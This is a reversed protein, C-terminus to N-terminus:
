CDCENGDGQRTEHEEDRDFTMKQTTTGNYQVCMHVNRGTPVAVGRVWIEQVDTYKEPVPVIADMGSTWTKWTEHSDKKGGLGIFLEVTHAETKPKCFVVTWGM